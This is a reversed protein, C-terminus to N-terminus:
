MRDFAFVEVIDEVLGPANEEITSHPFPLRIRLGHIFTQRAGVSLSRWMRTFPLCRAIVAAQGAGVGALARLLLADDGDGAGQGQGGAVQLAGCRHIGQPANAAVACHVHAHVYRASRLEGVQGAKAQPHEKGSHKSGPWRGPSHDRLFSNCIAPLAAPLGAEATRHVM